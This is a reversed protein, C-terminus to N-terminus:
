TGVPKQWFTVDRPEALLKNIRASYSQMFPQKIHRDFAERSEWVEYLLFQAEDDTAEHLEFTICAPDARSPEVLAMLESKVQQQQNQRAQFRATLILM